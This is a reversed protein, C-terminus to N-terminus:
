LKVKRMEAKAWSPGIAIEVPITCVRGNILLPIEMLEKIRRLTDIDGPRYLGLIADHVQALLWVKNPQSPHPIDWVNVRTDLEKWVRFLALNLIDAVPSQELQGLAERLTDEDWTRGLFQRTRGLCSITIGSRKLQEHIEQHRRKIMPFAGPYNSVLKRASGQLNVSGYMKAFFEAAEALPIHLQRAMGSPTRGMNGGHQVRKMHDRKTHDPDWPFYTEALKKDQALDGTWPIDDCIMRCVQTHVDGTLHARIYAEDGSDYAVIHSEAQELDAYFIELGTDAVIIGRLKDSIQQINWGTWDPAKSASWRGTEAAGVNMASYMRGYWGTASRAYGIQKRAKKARICARAIAAVREDGNKVAERAISDLAEEDVTPRGSARDRRKRIDLLDYLLHQIQQSSGLLIPAPQLRSVGCRRCCKGLDDDSLGRPWLHNRHEGCSGVHLETKDWVNAALEAVEYGAELEEKEYAEIARMRRNQDIAVGRLTMALAPAQCAHEFRYIHGTDDDLRPALVNQVESTVCCDLANYAAHTLFGDNQVLLDSLTEETVIM